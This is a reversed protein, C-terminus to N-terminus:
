HYMNSGGNKSRLMNTFLLLIMYNLIPLTQMSSLSKCIVDLNDGCVCRLKFEVDQCPPPFLYIFLLLKRTSSHSLLVGETRSGPNQTGFHNDLKDARHSIQPEFDFIKAGFKRILFYTSVAVELPTLLKQKKIKSTM